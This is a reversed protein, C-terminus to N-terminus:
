IGTGEQSQGQFQVAVDLPQCADGVRVSRARALPGNTAVVETVFVDQAADAAPLGLTFVARGQHPKSCPQKSAIVRAEDVGGGVGFVSISVVARREEGRQVASVMGKVDGRKLTAVAITLKPTSANVRAVQRGGDAAVSTSIALMGLAACVLALGSGTRRVM